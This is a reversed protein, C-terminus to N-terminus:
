RGGRQAEEIAGRIRVFPEELDFNEALKPFRETLTAADDAYRRAVAASHPGIDFHYLGREHAADVRYLPLSTDATQGRRSILAVPAECFERVALAAPTEVCLFDIPCSAKSLLTSGIAEGYLYSELSTGYLIEQARNPRIPATCHFELPRGTRNLLLFGGFLGHQEHSVVTYFGIASAAKKDGSSM